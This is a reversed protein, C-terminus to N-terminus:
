LKSGDIVQGDNRSGLRLYTTPDITYSVMFVSGDCRVFFVGGNHASGFRDPAQTGPRDQMPLLNVNFVRNIDNDNGVYMNENDGGDIGTQYHDLNVYKEGILITNSAGDKILAPKVESREFILGDRGSPPTVDIGAQKSGPGASHLVSSSSGSNGAYDSRAVKASAACNNAVQGFTHTYTTVRRRTPCQYGPLPTTVMTVNLNFKQSDSQGIGIDHINTQEMYPLTNYIWGGPQNRKFGMDPDGVWYYGWGGSPYIGNAQVSQLSALGMQKLNNQCQTRRAAERASQVAPLLLGVLIGIIAIVVLLEVLTFASRSRRPRLSRRCM